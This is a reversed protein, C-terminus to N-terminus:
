EYIGGGNQVETLPIALFIEDSSISAGEYYPRLKAESQMYNNVVELVNGWRVLDFWRNGEMALELRREMRVAKRAYDQNWGEAPYQGVYYNAKMPNLEVPTYSGDISRDAKARVMNILQRATDLSSNTEILAEAKLLLIDAYRILCFNLASAGWPFGQVMDPSSPDILCKKGSYEGYVDYARCWKSNYTHGRFPFGIRGVTFDLRPDVNGEYDSTVNVDNFTDFLPLGNEDTRFANVLNQSALFFDDGSGFLNGESYTTNLLNCWNIHANNNATSFQIAMISEKRNNFEIKSMDLFNDYLEYKGSNIVYDSYEIVDAWDSTFASVKAMLAAAVYKGFRGEQAQTEPLSNWADKIDQKIFGFIEDRTFEDYRAETAVTTETLYPIREFIRILDFYFYARLLKLEGILADKGSLSESANIAKMAQHVRAIAYYNNRWKNYNTANDSTLNSIELQHINAEMSVGGGGKYADDSRVDFVWNTIPACFSENNGFFHAELGAYASAMLGEISEDTIQDSTFQGSPKIDLMDNCSTAAFLGCACLGIAINKIIKM